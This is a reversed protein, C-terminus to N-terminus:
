HRLTISLSYYIAHTLYHTIFLTLLCCFFYLGPFGFFLIYRPLLSWGRRRRMSGCGTSAGTRRAARSSSPPRTHPLQPPLQDTPCRQTPIPAQTAVPAATRGAVLLPSGVVDSAFPLFRYLKFAEHSVRHAAPLLYCAALLLCCAALLLCCCWATALSTISGTGLKLTQILAPASGAVKAACSALDYERVFGCVLKHEIGEIGPVLQHRHRLAGGVVLRAGDHTFAVSLFHHMHDGQPTDMWSKVLEKSRADWVCLGGGQCVAALLQGDPSLALAVVRGADAPMRPMSLPSPELKLKNNNNIKGIGQWADVRQALGVWGEARVGAGGARMESLGAAAAAARERADSGDAYAKAAPVAPTVGAIGWSGAADGGGRAGGGGEGGEGSAAAAPVFYFQGLGIRKDTLREFKSTKVTLQPLALLALAPLSSYTTPLYTPLYDTSLLPRYASRILSIKNITRTIPLVRLPRLPHCTVPLFPM